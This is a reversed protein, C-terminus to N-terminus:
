RSLLPIGRASASRSITVPKKWSTNSRTRRSSTRCLASSAMWSSSASGDVAPTAQHGRRDAHAGDLVHGGALRSPEGDVAAEDGHHIKSVFPEARDVRDARVLVIVQVLSLHVHIELRDLTRLVSGGEVEVGAGGSRKRGDRRHVHEGHGHGVVVDQDLHSWIVWVSAVAGAVSSTLPKRAATPSRSIRRPISRVTCCPWIWASIPGLPDPFDVSELTTMPRGPYRIRSPLTVKLPSSMVVRGGSWRALRPSNRAMCYGVSTGPTETTFKRRVAYWAILPSCIEASANRLCMFVCISRRPISSAITWRYTLWPNEPPSFFRFSTRCSATSSGVSAIKSSVSEPRSMSENFSTASLMLSSAPGSSPTSIM